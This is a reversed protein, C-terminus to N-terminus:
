RGAERDAARRLTKRREHAPKAADNRARVLLQLRQAALILEALEADCALLEHDSVSGDSLAESVRGVYDGLERTVAGIAQLACGGAQAPDPLLMLVGGVEEAFANAIRRDGSLQTITVADALGLKYGAAGLIEKQLTSPSKGLRPALAAAGGPYDRAVLRAADLVNM